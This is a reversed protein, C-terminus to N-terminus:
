KPIFRFVTKGHQFEDDRELLSRIIKMVTAVSPDDTLLGRFLKEDFEINEVMGLRVIIKEIETPRLAWNQDRDERVVITLIQQIIQQSIKTRIKEQLVTQEEVIALLRDVNQNQSIRHLEHPIHNLEAVNEDMRDMNRHLREREQRLFHVQRRLANNQRRLTGFKRLKQQQLLLVMTLFITLSSALTVVNSETLQIALVNIAVAITAVLVPNVTVHRLRWLCSFPSSFIGKADQDDGYDEIFGRPDSSQPTELPSFPARSRLRLDTSTWSRTGM